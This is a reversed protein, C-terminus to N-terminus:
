RNLTVPAANVCLPGVPTITVTPLPSVTISTTASNSCGTAADTYNYTISFTGQGATTPNFTSGTVGTGSFTGGAPNGTLTVPAANVCLPGVPTITVTPLPNVTVTVTATNSCGATTGTVTYTTTAGPNATVTAGTTASLGTAPSWSYTTAGTATLTTGAGGACIAVDPSVGVTPQPNVTVTVTATNSCGATTGTVTYTTTAGPNATVTAGTTASLGTAPSWSYTTAGTATLTTGAGGACIAVDPSVGVTPQPNVTVTVTATNSCGATTGTVTYTTTAGPNATVTAGTTASLGTAPSWSYTTAGTATLTTGAGGACIAVDPSVGVTPQPNVTVTVTATNSCGATTGTVTYTTTAGPNATVTAGTTASLGTAPSWSYTTAGTATLTTGAGGACIAVDPSVGVTPQPNVTVTVTATNSCGATTGTVTYTTTAGPNATVTAGTTASLGTAPSWSYTTAGTATLTTGAGGACIAVDPSVGVTPQPNVTVTVTATNSCGATTGTVTYTTTAGPNATVTAGTTASLGTAPSWSYTTAGTATLTTGAGGACIAVDPSVGVTPQPNVTVTVTATNSCGATTGTVTYTTTAGPNATVTAGTTASLGTAPSWSYTTAGTATLTTGAGGACIAVDPSVGVTPQPNVTITASGTMTRSCLTTTNTAVVTYTIGPSAAGLQLGFDLGSGTGAIPSGVPTAGNMLQYSIGTNSGSLLVHLGAPTANSCYSGGGSVTFLNPRANVTVLVQATCGNPATYTVTITGAGVPTILGGSGVAAVAANPPTAAFTGGSPSGTLTLTSGVCVAPIAPTITPIANVTIQIATSTNPTCGSSTVTRRYWTTQTLPGPTYNQTNNTGSASGFGAVASTTSSEWLYTYTGNGGTPLSGTLAAPTQGSCIAQAATVTNNAIAANVTIQIATATNTCGGSTVTRRYWTTQTLAGPTYNQTNNTGSASAFGAVASTTSSEWLYTYTTGDGGTPTSGTLAAPTSGNCITQAAAVTNNAIAPNVTIQIATATNPTCGSSSVTRRFWTTQTLAGPTYNQTNNTGSASSFGAVASTTSSEWLYTYTGNGGTPLSGTLAAPASGSCITQAAAVTNNAIAANVTIQIATSINPTCGSSTVTRRFWTTQTLAGPTYNQTNNTGSASSFGAVASTTSSEWLYTYTGDGGTPTSGTLAAPTSGNCITQAAAVTNNAVAPNVTIQIATSTNATCGGGSTVTRRYWTTQTLAGPTYNQGNNTGSASGFGAVASTTSSEWLYTYTGDGGTPTSGTLAAPTSGSCIAQAAAITNNAIAPNVTVTVSGTAPCSGNSPTYTVTYTFIGSTTPTVSGPNQVNNPFQQAATLGNGAPSGTWTFTGSSGVYTITLTWGNFVGTFGSNIEDVLRLTWTGNYNTSAGLGTILGGFTGQWPRYGAANNFPANGATVSTGSADTFLTNTFNAGAAGNNNALVISNGSICQTLPTNYPLNPNCNTLTSGPAGLYIEVEQDRQHSVNVTATISTITVGAPIGSVTISRDLISSGVVLPNAQQFTGRTNNTFSVTTPNSGPPGTASLSTSQGLCITTLTASATVTPTPNVTVSQTATGTCNNGNTFSYTIIASGSTAVGTVVGSGSVTAVSPNSTSWSGGAPSGSLNLTSGSCVNGSNAAISVTPLPNVHVTVSASAACGNLSAGFNFQEDQQTTTTNILAGVLSGPTVTGGPGAPDMGLLNSNNIFRIWNYAAGATGGVNITFQDGSCVTITGPTATFTLTTVTVTVPTRSSECGGVTQSVYYTGTALSTGSPLPSGGTSASYWQLGTGTATLNAVTPNTGSCFTQPSTATPAAPAANVIVDTTGASSTCGGVTVTVSYPGADATTVNNITPTRSTSTFGAPGTWAYTAGVVIPTSLNLTAGECLPGNNNATPTAPAANIVVNTTGAASTCGGVTVTVSYPGADATTVNNITPTRSTSTFGGPGSWAYTAGVVTPTSLNLTAGECLPGNDNATPTAPAANIVVNTTGAASTCGGVTVTVSYPGADATTVNNITPTRSTSTFGGPGTWAYTAGVVTPTSLSLTAGECLPGNDNATPTAPAANIVVNTTGAASTCGGVTVTVSYPGADATTVNNITPTRSTSTFGGPGTWAYTAGAVTPTSLNLTAGECLPGNNNATPTAPAANIVVNTTGAASTCGGVTVTVSYPGADATTVNNITPTRSTSTFGGPGTWAYTAGVVSPTSLNLTAGECLPGNNNATPTAPTANVTIAGSTCTSTGEVAIIDLQIEYSGGSGPNITVTSNHTSGVISAGSTNNIISWTYLFDTGNDTGDTTWDYNINAGTCIPSNVNNVGCSPTALTIGTIATISGTTPVGTVTLTNAGANVAGSKTWPLSGSYAGGAIASENGIVDSQLYTGTFDYDGTIVTNSVNWYRTLYNTTSTNNSNKTNFATVTMASGPGGSGSTFQLTAPSYESTATGVPFVYVAGSTVGRQLDGNIFGNTRVIAGTSSNSVIVKRSNTAADINGGNLTLTNTVTLDNGTLQISPSNTNNIIFNYLPISSNVIFTKGAPTSSNGIQFTGGTIIKTGVGSTILLDGVTTNLNPNQLIITGGSLTNIHSTATVEFSANSGNSLTGLTNVNITGGSMTLTGRNNIFLRGAVNIIGDQMDLFAFLTGGGNNIELSNGASAGFNAVGSTVRLLGNFTTSFNGTNLTAGNVWVGGTAPISPGTVGTFQFTGTTIKFLGNSISLNGTNSIAGSGNAEVISSIASGKNIIINNFASAASGSITSSGLGTFSINGTGAILTGDNIYNGNVELLMGANFSLTGGASITIDHSAALGTNVTVTTGAGIIVDDGSTPAVGSSWITGDSWNGNAVSTITAFHNSTYDNAEGFYNTYSYFNNKQQNYNGAISNSSSSFTSSLNKQSHSYCFSFLLIVNFLIRLFNRLPLKGCVFVNENARSLRLLRTM